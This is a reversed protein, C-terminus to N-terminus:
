LQKRCMLGHSLSSVLGKRLFVNSSVSFIGGKVEIIEGLTWLMSVITNCFSGSLFSRIIAKFFSQKKFLFSVMYSWDVCIQCNSKSSVEPPIENM